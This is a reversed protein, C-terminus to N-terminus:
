TEEFVYVTAPAGTDNRGFLTAFTDFAQSTGPSLEWIDNTAAGTRLYVPGANDSRAQVRIRRRTASAAFVAAANADAIVVPALNSITATPKEATTATGTIQVATVPVDTQDEIVVENGTFFEVTTGAAGIIQIYDWSEVRRLILALIGTFMESSGNKVVRLTVAASVTILRMLNGPPVNFQGLVPITEVRREITM